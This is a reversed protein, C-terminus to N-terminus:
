SLTLPQSVLIYFLLKLINLKEWHRSMSIFRYKNWVTLGRSTKLVAAPLKHRPDCQIERVTHNERPYYYMDTDEDPVTSLQIFFKNLSTDRSITSRSKISPSYYISGEYCIRGMWELGKGPPQRIWHWCYSSSTISFGSVTCTLSLPQSPKIVAPGSEKLQIQSLIGSFLNTQWNGSTM